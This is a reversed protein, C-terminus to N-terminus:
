RSKMASSTTLISFPPMSSVPEPYSALGSASSAHKREASSPPYPVSVIQYTGDNALVAPAATSTTWNTLDASFQVTYTLGATAYDVRRV